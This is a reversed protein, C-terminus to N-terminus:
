ISRSTGDFYVGQEKFFNNNNIITDVCALKISQPPCSTSTATANLSLSTANPMNKNAAHPGVPAIRSFRVHKGTLFNNPLADTKATIQANQAFATLSLLMVLLFGPATKKM